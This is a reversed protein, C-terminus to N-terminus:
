PAAKKKSWLYFGAVTITVAGAMTPQHLAWDRFAWLTEGVGKWAGVNSIGQTIADPVAPPIIAPAAETVAIVAATTGVAVAPKSVERAETVSQAMFPEDPAEVPKLFLAAERQRRSVLGPLVRGGGYKWLAFAKAAGAKDGKNLRKLVTSRAFGASGINYALSVMSDYENQNISVTVLRSVAAEFKAIERALGAEAEAETWVMGLRVGETCGWGITPVGAPCLYAACSGDKLHTHYGEFSCILRLGEDSINM